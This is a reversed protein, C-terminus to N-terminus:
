KNFTRKIYVKAEPSFECTKEIEEITYGNEHIAKCIRDFLPTNIEVFSKPKNEPTKLPKKEKPQYMANFADNLENTAQKIATTLDNGDTSWEGGIRITEYNGINKVIQVNITKLEM